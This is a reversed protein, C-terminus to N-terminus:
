EWYEQLRRYDVPHDVDLLLSTDHWPLYTPSFKSFIARGGTDGTLKMLDPFTMQDFLVPNARQGDVLPALVPALCNAHEDSLARLIESSVQPQDALLFFVSGPLPAPQACLAFLGAHISSAQGNESHPNHIIKVPLDSVAETVQLAYAGTVVIVPQLGSQLATRAIKRVFPEGRWELIQKPMGYRKAAGAALLIAGTPEHVAHILPVQDNTRAPNALSATIVANFVPVLETSITRAAAQLTLTDAQNLLVVSRASSPINKRGGQEHKLFRILDKSRVVADPAVECLTSFLEPRHVFGENLPKALGSLGAVVVVLDIFDPLNPEHLAPAKLPKQRAGDAEILLPIQGATCYQNLISLDSPSLPNTRDGSIPGTVLIVGQAEEIASTLTQPTDAIIHRDALGIQWQGMHTTTTVIVPQPLNRALQFIATTKGGAGVFAISSPAKEHIINADSNAAPEYVEWPIRLARALDLQNPRPTQQRSSIM